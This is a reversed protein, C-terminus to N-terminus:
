VGNQKAEVVNIILRWGDPFFNEPNVVGGKPAALVANVVFGNTTLWEAFLQEPTKAPQNSESQM